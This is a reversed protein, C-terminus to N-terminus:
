GQAAPQDLENQVRNTFYSALNDVVATTLQRAALWSKFDAQEDISPDIFDIIPAARLEGLREGFSVAEEWHPLLIYLANSAEFVVTKSLEAVSYIHVGDPARRARLLLDFLVRWASDWEQLQEQTITM